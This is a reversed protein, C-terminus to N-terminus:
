PLATVYTLTALNQTLVLSATWRHKSVKTWTRHLVCNCLMRLLDEATVDLYKSFARFSFSKKLKKENRVKVDKLLNTNILMYGKVDKSEKIFKDLRESIEAIHHEISDMLELASGLSEVRLCTRACLM